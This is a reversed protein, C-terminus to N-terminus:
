TDTSSVHLTVTPRINGLRESFNRRAVNIKVEVVALSISTGDVDMRRYEDSVIDFNDACFDMLDVGDSSFAIWPDSVLKQMRVEYIGVM